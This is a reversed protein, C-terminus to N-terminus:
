ARDDARYSIKRKTAENAEAEWVFLCFLGRRVVGDCKLMEYEARSVSRYTLYKHIILFVGWVLGANESGVGLPM